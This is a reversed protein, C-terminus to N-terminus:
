TDSRKGELLLLLFHIIDGQEGSRAPTMEGLSGNGGYIGNVGGLRARGKARLTM